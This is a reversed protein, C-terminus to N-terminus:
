DWHEDLTLGSIVECGVYAGAKMADVAQAHHFQWPTAIIVADLNEKDLMRKYADVDGSYEIHLQKNSKKIQERCRALSSERIDCIAVINVDERNLCVAVHRRGRGGVGIVGLRITKKDRKMESYSLTPSLIGTGMVISGAKIFNRRDM